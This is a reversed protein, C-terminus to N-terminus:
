SKQSMRQICSEDYFYFVNTFYDTEMGANKVFVKLLMLIMVCINKSCKAYIISSLLKKANQIEKKLDLLIPKILWNTIILSM